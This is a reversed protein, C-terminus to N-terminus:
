LSNVILQAAQRAGSINRAIPGVELEALAGTVYLNPGWQLSHSVIPCGYESCHLKHEHILPTLWQKEPLTQVFGTALFVRIWDYILHIWRKLDYDNRKKQSFSLLFLNM